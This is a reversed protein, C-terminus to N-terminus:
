GPQNHCRRKMLWRAATGFLGAALVALSTPEPVANVVQVKGIRLDSDGTTYGFYGPNLEGEYLDPDTIFVTNANAQTWDSAAVQGLVLMDSVGPSTKSFTIWSSGVNANYIQSFVGNVGDSNLGANFTQFSASPLTARAGNLGGEGATVNPIGAPMASGAFGNGLTLINLEQLSLPGTGAAGTGTFLVTLNGNLSDYELVLDGPDISAANTLLSSGTVLVGVIAALLVATRRSQTAVPRRPQRCLALSRNTSSVAQYM